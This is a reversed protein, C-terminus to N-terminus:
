QIHTEKKGCISCTKILKAPEDIVWTPPYAMWMTTGNIGYTASYYSAEDFDEFIRGDSAAWV